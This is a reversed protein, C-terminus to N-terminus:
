ELIRQVDYALHPPCLSNPDGGQQSPAALAPHDQGVRAIIKGQGDFARVECVVKAQAMLSYTRNKTAGGVVEGTDFTAEVARVEPSYAYGHLWLYQKKVGWRWVLRADVPIQFPAVELPSDSPAKGPWMSTTGALLTHWEGRYRGVLKVGTELCM